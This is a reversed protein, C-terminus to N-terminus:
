QQIGTIIFKEKKLDFIIEIWPDRDTNWSKTQTFDNVLLQFVLKGDILSVDNVYTAQYDQDLMNSLYDFLEGNMEQKFIDNGLFANDLLLKYIEM